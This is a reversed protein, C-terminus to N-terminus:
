NPATRDRPHVLQFNKVSSLSVRGNFNLVYSGTEDWWVPERNKLIIVNGDVNHMNKLASIGDQEAEPKLFEDRRDRTTLPPLFVSMRRPGNLRM